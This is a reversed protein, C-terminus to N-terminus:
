LPNEKLFSQTLKKLLLDLDGPSEFHFQLVGTQDSKLQLNVPLGFLETLQNTLALEDPNHSSRRSQTAQSQPKNLRRIHQETQRVSWGKEIAKQAIDIQEEVGILARGHGASLKGTDVLDQVEPPLNLLRLINTIHPRSKGLKESLQEQTYSLEECLQRYSKAEEIPSLDQRQINELLSAERAEQPSIKLIRCPIEQLGVKRAARLRREGAVLEIEGKEGKRVLLPQLIGQERISQALEELPEERFLHRPQYLGTKIDTAQYYVLEMTEHGEEAPEESLGNHELLASLGRGLGRRKQSDPPTNM